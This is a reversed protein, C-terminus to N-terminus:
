QIFYRKSLYLIPALLQRHMSTSVHETHSEINTWQWQFPPLLSTKSKRVGARKKSIPIPDFGNRESHKRAWTCGYRLHMNLIDHSGIEGAPLLLSFINDFGSKKAM